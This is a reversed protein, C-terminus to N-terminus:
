TKLDPSASATQYTQFSSSWYKPSNISYIYIKNIAAYGDFIKNIYVLLSVMM